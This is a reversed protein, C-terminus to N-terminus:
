ADYPETANPNAARTEDATFTERCAPCTVLAPYTTKRTWAPATDNRGCRTHMSPRGYDDRRALHIPLQELESGAPQQAAPQPTEEQQAPAEEATQLAALQRGAWARCEAARAAAEEAKTHEALALAAFSQLAGVPTYAYGKPLGYERRYQAPYSGAPMTYLHATVKVRYATVYPTAGAAADMPGPTEVRYWTEFSPGGAATSTSAM